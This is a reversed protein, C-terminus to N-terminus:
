PANSWGPTITSCLSWDTDANDKDMGDPQRCLSGPAVGSDTKTLATGEVLSVPEPFGPIVAATLSGKYSLADVLSGKAVNVLAIGDPLADGNQIKGTGTAPKLVVAGPPASAAVVDSWCVLLYQGHDLAGAAGLDIVGYSANTGGNVLVLEYGSLDVPSGTDNHIEIFEKDDTGPQDYDVENLTLRGVVGIVAIVGEGGLTATITETQKSYGATYEFAVSFEGEPVIVESPVSGAAAADLALAIKVGGPPAPIDLNIALTVKAGVPVAMSGPSFAALVPVESPDVVRVDAERSSGGYTATLTIPEQSTTPGSSLLLPASTAGAPVTVGGGVISLTPDATTVGIFLDAPAPRSLTVTLPAPTTPTEITNTYIFSLAPGFGSLAGWLDTPGRPALKSNGFQGNLIGSVKQFPDGVAPFPDTLYLLDDVVLSGDLKFEAGPSTVATVVPGTIEVLVGELAKARPGCKAVEAATVLTAAPADATQADITFLASTLEILGKFEDVRASEITVLDGPNVTANQQYVFIGAHDSGLYGPDGPKVQIFFGSPSKGTVIAGKIRVKTLVPVEGSKIAYISVECPGNDPNAQAPCADCADGKGDGDADKQDPNWARECNDTANPAADADADDADFQKCPAPAASLPCADCADGAGDADYDAQAGRDMPRIPNFVVPCNDMGNLIGDGDADEASPLGAYVSSGETSVPRAPLCSPENEPEGCFFAPYAPKASAELAALSKGIDGALCVSKESGCVSTPDCAGSGPIAAIVPADGYLAKGGRLVLLVDAPEADIIARHDKKADGKFISIDATKGAALTGLVDDTATAEAANATVMLWLEEDTFAGGFYTTDLTDACRLERLLNMSGSSIWDTGLAIKVGLRSAAAVAATDGYLAVNSRPSWILSAGEAAMEAYDRPSVGVAHIFGSKPLLLDKGGNATSSLCAFENRAYADIGESVHALFADTSGASGIKFQYCGASAQTGSTDGLPFTSLTVQPQGLGEQDAKDLNRLLGTASGSGVTSTAGGMLFRLEGFRIEDDSAGGAASLEGHCHLGLRWDHRHEFRETQDKPPSNHAYTIHDHTNILGPSIVGTPCTIATAGSAKSACDCGVCAIVGQEDVLVQGGRYITGPVLVTGALLKRGDGPVVECAGGAPGPPLDGCQIEAPLTKRCDAECGDGPAINGDDCQEGAQIDLAGDGCPAIKAEEGCAASCGDGEATNGDDCQENSEVVGNGCAAPKPEDGCAASCGNGEITNGDDCQEGPNVAGDGCAAKPPPKQIPSPEPAEGCAAAGLSAVGILVNLLRVSRQTPHRM